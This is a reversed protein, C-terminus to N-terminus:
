LKTEVESYTVKNLIKMFILSFVLIFLFTIWLMSFGYALRGKDFVTSYGKALIFFTEKPLTPTTLQAGRIPTPNLLYPLVFVQYSYIFSVILQFAIFPSLFPLTIVRIMTLRRCGDVSAADYLEQPITSLGGVFILLSWGVRWFNALLIAFLPFTGMWNVRELSIPLSDLLLNLTGINKDLFLRFIWGTAVIPIIYPLYFVVQFFSKGRMNKELLLALFLGICVQLVSNLISYIFTTYLSYWFSADGFLKIYNKLGVYKLNVTFAMQNTLSVKFGWMIPIIQFVLFGILWFSIFSYFSIRKERGLYNKRGM